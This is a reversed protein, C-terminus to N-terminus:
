ATRREDLNAIGLRAMEPKVKDHYCGPCISHSLAVETRRAVYDELTSWQDDERIKRCYSCIPLLGQLQGIETQMALIRQAVRLRAAMEDLDFPKTVFDDAGANMGELYSGKGSLATVLIVYTYRPRHESRIMRCLDLGTLGPMLWDALVLSPQLKRYAEWASPGDPAVVCDHDLRRLAARLFNRATADDDAILIKLGSM